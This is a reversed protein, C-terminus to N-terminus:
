LRGIPTSGGETQWIALGAASLSPTRPRTDNPGMPWGTREDDIVDDQVQWAIDVTVEEPGRAPDVAFEHTGYQVVVGAAGDPGAWADDLRVSADRPTYGSSTIDALVRTLAGRVMELQERRDDSM